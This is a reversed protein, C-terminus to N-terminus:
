ARVGIARELRPPTLEGRLESHAPKELPLLFAGLSSEHFVREYSRPHSPRVQKVEM